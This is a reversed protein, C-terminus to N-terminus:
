MKLRSSIAQYINESYTTGRIREDEYINNIWDTLKMYTGDGNLISSIHTILYKEDTITQDSRYIDQWLDIIGNEKCYHDYDPAYLLNPKNMLAFDLCCSSYDTILIESIAILEQSSSVDDSKLILVNKHGTNSLESIHDSNHLKVLLKFQKEELLHIFESDNLVAMLFDEVIHNRYPRYTPMYLIYQFQDANQLQTLVKSPTRTHDNLIDNRPMGTMIVKRMDKIHYTLMKSRASEASTAITYSFYYWNFLKDKVEKFFYKLSYTEYDKKQFMSKKIASAAHGLHVITAGYLLCVQSFDDLGNTYFAVGATLMLKCGERSHDWVAPYGKACLQEALDKKRSVWVARIEPHRKLIYEYLYRSNDDYRQGGWCAFIWVHNDRFPITLWRTSSTLANLFWYQRRLIDNRSM